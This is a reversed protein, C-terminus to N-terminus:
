DNDFVIKSSIKQPLNQPNQPPNQPLFSLVGQFDLSKSPTPATRVPSIVSQPIPGKCGTTVQAFSVLISSVCCKDYKLRSAKALL